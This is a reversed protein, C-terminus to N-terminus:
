VGPAFYDIFGLDGDVEKCLQAGAIRLKVKRRIEVSRSKRALM